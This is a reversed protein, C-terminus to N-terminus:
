KAGGYGRLVEDVGAPELGTVFALRDCFDRRAEEARIAARCSGCSGEYTIGCATESHPLNDSV